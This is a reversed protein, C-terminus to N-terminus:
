FRSRIAAAVGTFGGAVALFAVSAWAAIHIDNMTGHQGFGLASLLMATRLGVAMLAFVAAIAAALTAARRLHVACPAERAPAGDGNGSFQLFAMHTMM